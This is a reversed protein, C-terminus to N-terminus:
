VGLSWSCSQDDSVLYRVQSSTSSAAQSAMSRAPTTGAPVASATRGTASRSSAARMSAVHEVGRERQEEHARRVRHDNAGLRQEGREGLADLFVPLRRHDAARVANVRLRRGEADREGAMVGLDRAAEDPQALRAALDGPALDRAGDAGVRVERRRDLGVREPAQAEAGLRHRRLDDRAVSVGRQVQRHRQEGRADLAERRVHPVPLARLDELGLLREGRTLLAGGGHRV